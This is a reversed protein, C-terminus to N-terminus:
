VVLVKCNKSAKPLNLLKDTINSRWEALNQRKRAIIQVSFNELVEANKLFFEVMQMENKRGQFSLIELTKLQSCLCSPFRKSLLLDKSVNRSHQLNVTFVLNGLCPFCSLLHPLLREWGGSFYGDLNLYTLKPLEPIAISGPLFVATFIGSIRLAIVNSIGKFLNTAAALSHLRLAVLTKCTSVGASLVKFKHCDIYLDLERVNKLLAYQIWGDVRYSDVFGGYKIRFKDVGGTHYLLVRDVFNMFGYGDSKRWKFCDDFNLNSMSAYIKRWRTSLISTCVAQKLPLFSIIHFLLEDPLSSIRDVEKGVKARNAM